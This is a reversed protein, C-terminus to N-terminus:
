NNERKKIEFVPGNLIREWISALVTAPNFHRYFDIGGTNQKFLILRIKLTKFALKKLNQDLLCWSFM